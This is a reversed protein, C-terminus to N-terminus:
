LLKQALKLARANLELNHVRIYDINAKALYASIMATEFDREVFAENTVLGLFSKRSYGYIVESSLNTFAEADTILQWSQEATKGFGIGPDIIIQEQSIGMSILYNAKEILWDKVVSTINLEAAITNKPDSPIGLNHMIVIKLNYDKALKIMKADIVGNQHNIWAIPIRDILYQIVEHSSSDISILASSNKLISTVSPLIADFRAIEEEISPLKCNPRTSMAGIDIVDPKSELMLELQHAAGMPNNYIGGDSFSDPTINLIGVLKTNKM